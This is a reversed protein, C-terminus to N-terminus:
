TSPAPLNCIGATPPSSQRFRNVHYQHNEAAGIAESRSLNKAVLFFFFPGPVSM